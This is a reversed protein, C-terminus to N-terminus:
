IMGMAELHVRFENMKFKGELIRKGNISYMRKALRINEKVVSTM